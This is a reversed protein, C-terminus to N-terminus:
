YYLASLGPHLQVIQRNHPEKRDLSTVWAEPIELFPNQKDLKWLERRVLHPQFMETSSVTAVNKAIGAIIHSCRLM